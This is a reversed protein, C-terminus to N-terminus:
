CLKPALNNIKLVTKGQFAWIMYAHSNYNLAQCILHYIIILYVHIYSGDRTVVLVSRRGGIDLKGMVDAVGLAAEGAGLDEIGKAPGVREVHIGEM